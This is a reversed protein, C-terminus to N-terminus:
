DGTLLVLLESDAAEKTQGGGFINNLAQAQALPGLGSGLNQQSRLLSEYYDSPLSPYGIGFM